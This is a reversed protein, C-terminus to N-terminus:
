IAQFIVEFFSIKRLLKLYRQWIMDNDDLAKKEIWHSSSQLKRETVQKSIEMGGEGSIEKILIM